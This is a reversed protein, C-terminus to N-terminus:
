KPPQLLEMGQVQRDGMIMITHTAATAPLLVNTQEANVATAATHPSLVKRHHPAFGYKPTASCAQCCKDISGSMVSHLDNGNYAVGVEVSGCHSYTTNEVAPPTPPAPPPPPAPRSPPALDTVNVRWIPSGPASRAWGAAPVAVGGHVVAATKPDIGAAPGPGTWRMRGGNKGSDLATLVLPESQYYKGAGLHVTVDGGVTDALAKRAALQAKPLTAFPKAQSGDGSADSGSPSVFIDSGAASASAVAAALLLGLRLAVPTAVSM